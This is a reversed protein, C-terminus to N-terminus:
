GIISAQAARAIAQDSTPDSWLHGYTDQTFQYSAHGAWKTVQKPSAGQEIWMSVAAHRLTHLAFYPRAKKKGDEGEVWDVLDAAAMLPVWIRNYINHYNQPKGGAGRSGGSTPFVLGLESPPAVMLWRKLAQVTTPPITVTRYGNKTKVPGIIQWDDARQTVRLTSENLFLNRRPLGRLESARLGAFMLVSVMAEAQGTEDFTRSAEYLARLQEKPPIDVESDDTRDAGKTRITVADSPNAAMWGAGQAFKMIQRFMAYVRTAMADSVGAELARGYRTCEPGSLKSLKCSSIEYPKLHHEVQRAYSEMTSRERKGASVLSQFDALFAKAADMVDRSNKDPTHVGAALQGEVRVREADADAKRAFQKRHRKGAADQYTLVFATRKEGKPTVWPRKSVTAM